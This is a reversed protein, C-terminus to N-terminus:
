GLRFAVGLGLALWGLTWGFDGYGHGSRRHLLWTQCLTLATTSVLACVALGTVGYLKVLPVLLAAQVGLAVVYSRTAPRLDGCALLYQFQVQGLARMMLRGLLVAFLVAAGAYRADYLVRVALPGLAVGLALLPMGWVSGRQCVRRHWAEREQQDTLRALMAFQVDCARTLLGEAVSALNWAVFYLGMAKPDIFRLGLLRDMNLWLALVLTNVPVQRGLGAIDQAAEREWRLRPAVPCLVYSVAVATVAGALTGGIVAGVSPFAVALSLSVLTGVLTQGVEDVFLARFNM